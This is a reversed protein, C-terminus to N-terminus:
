CLWSIRTKRCVISLFPFCSFTFRVQFAVFCVSKLADGVLLLNKVSRMSTVYVGVDLFAVGVLREDSDFARVYIQLENTWRANWVRIM